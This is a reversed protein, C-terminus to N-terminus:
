KETLPESNYTMSGSLRLRLRTSLSFTIAPKASFKTFLEGSDEQLSIVFLGAMWDTKCKLLRPELGRRGLPTFINESNVIFRMFHLTNMMDMLLTNTLRFQSADM